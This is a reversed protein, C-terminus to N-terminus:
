TNMNKSTIMTNSTILDQDEIHDLEESIISANPDPLFGTQKADPHDNEKHHDLGEVIFSTNPAPPLGAQKVDTTFTFTQSLAAHPLGHLGTLARRHNKALLAAYPCLEWTSLEDLHDDDEFHDLGVSNTLM